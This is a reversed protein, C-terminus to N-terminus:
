PRELSLTYDGTEDADYTGARILYEGDAPLTLTVEADGEGASDDDSDLLEWEDGAMRGVHLFADVDESRMTITFTEGERGRFTWADRYSGDAERSDSETLRGDLTEGPSIPMPPVGSERDTVREVLLTYAGTGGQDASSAHIHFAGDGPLEMTIRSDTGGAGNDDGDMGRCEGGEYEGVKVYTDFDESRLTVTITEGERGQYTWTDTYSNDVKRDGRALTGTVPEGLGIPTGAEPGEEHGGQGAHEEQAEVVGEDELTLEYAGTRGGDLSNARIEFTGDAPGIFEVRADTGGAGDDDSECDDCPPQAASGVSLYADFDGSRLTVRYRHRAVGAFRWVDYHSGDDLTPDSASLRGSVREGPRIVDQAAAPAAALVLLPLLHLARYM